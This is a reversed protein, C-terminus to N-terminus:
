LVSLRKRLLWWSDPAEWSTALLKHAVGVGHQSRWQNSRVWSNQQGVCYSHSWSVLLGTTCLLCQQILNERVGVRLTKRGKQLTTVNPYLDVHGRSAVQTVARTTAGLKTYYYYLKLFLQFAKLSKIKYWKSNTIYMPVVPQKKTM